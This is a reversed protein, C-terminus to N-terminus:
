ISANLESICEFIISCLESLPLLVAHSSQQQLTGSWRGSRLPILHHREQNLDLQWLDLTFENLLSLQDSGAKRTKIGDVGKGVTGAESVLESDSIRSQFHGGHDHDKSIQHHHPALSPFFFFFCPITFTVPLLLLSMIQFGQCIRSLLSHQRSSILPFHRM